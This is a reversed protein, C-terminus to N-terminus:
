AEFSLVLNGRKRRSEVLAHARRIEAFPLRHGIYPAIAGRATLEMLLSLDEAREPAAGAIARRGGERKPRVMAGLLEALDAAILALRGGETLAPKARAWGINGVTDLIADYRIGEAAFDTKAYDIVRAAGAARVLEANAASAVGTVEAGFHRALQVAMHGVAGSAGNILVREGPKVQARDRLFYLATTGGFPLAAATEFSVGPAIPALAGTEPLVAFEAHGGMRAGSLAFIRDGTAFRAAGPGFAAVEGAMEAGLVPRRPGKWGMALRVPLAFGKPVEVSRLRWDAATVSAAKVRILVEGKGPVPDPLEAIDVAEPPGYRRVIAAKM